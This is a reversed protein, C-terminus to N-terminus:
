KTRDKIIWPQMYFMNEWYRFSLSVWPNGHWQPLKELHYFLKTLYLEPKILQGSLNTVTLSIIFIKRESFLLREPHATIELGIQGTEIIEATM